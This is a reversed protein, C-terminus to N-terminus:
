KGKREGYNTTGTQLPPASHIETAVPHSDKNGHPEGVLWMHNPPDSSSLWTNISGTEILILYFTHISNILNESIGSSLPFPYKKVLLLTPIKHFIKM